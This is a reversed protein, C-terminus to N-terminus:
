INRKLSGFTDNKKVKQRLRRFLRERRQKAAAVSIGMVQAVEKDRDCRLWIELLEREKSKLKHLAGALRDSSIENLLIINWHASSNGNEDAPFLSFPAKEEAVVNGTQPAEGELDIIVRQHYRRWRACYKSFSCAVVVGLFTKFSAPKGNSHNEPDFRQVTEQFAFYLEQLADAIEGQPLYWRQNKKNAVRQIFGHYRQWLLDRSATCGRQAHRCLVEDSLESLEKAHADLPRKNLRSKEEKISGLHTPAQIATQLLM